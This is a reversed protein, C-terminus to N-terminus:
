GFCWGLLKKIKSETEGKFDWLNEFYHRNFDDTECDVCHYIGKVGEKRVMADLTDTRGCDCCKGKLKAFEM